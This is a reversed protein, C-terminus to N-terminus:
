VNIVTRIGNRDLTQALACCLCGRLGSKRRCDGGFISLPIPEWTMVAEQKRVLEARVRKITSRIRERVNDARLGADLADLRSREQATIKMVGRHQKM